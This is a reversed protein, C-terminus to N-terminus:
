PRLSVRNFQLNRARESSMTFGTCRDEGSCQYTMTGFGTAYAGAGNFGLTVTGGPYTLVLDGDQNARISYLVHLEDSYFDGELRKLEARPPVPRPARQAPVDHGGQHLTGGAVVGDKGPADFTFQANMARAFFAREGYAFAPIRPLGAGLAMLRGDEKTFYVGSQPSLAYYGVFADLRAPDLDIQKFTRTPEAAAAPEVGPEGDLYLDATRRVTQYIDVESTNALVLVSLGQKPFRWLEAGYGAISGSHEIKPVGRYTYVFLGSAYAIPKGDNLVGTAQMQKIVEMGGVRGDYFNRDWLALDQATSLVGGDGITSVNVAVYKHGGSDAPQYSLARGPVLTGYDRQFVTHKMGLPEFIRARAFEPLPTGSVREVILGLLLYGTNCYAYEQGPEFNLTRQRALLELAMDKTVVDDPRLGAMFLMDFYDRLGSTHHLLHRITITKGFDPVQPLHKRIDDDLSLKGDQALLHIAFATFQKSMSGIVFRAAPTMPVRRELDAMGYSKNLVVKGNRIVAVVAGPTDPRKWKTFLTDVQQEPLRTVQAAAALAPGTAGVVTSCLITVLLARKNMTDNMGKQHTPFCTM